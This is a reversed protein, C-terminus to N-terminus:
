RGGGAQQIRTASAADQGFQTVIGNNTLTAVFRLEESAAQIVAVAKSEGSVCAANVSTGALLETTALARNSQGDAIGDLGGAATDLTSVVTRAGEKDLFVLDDAM